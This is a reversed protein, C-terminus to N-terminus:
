GVTFSWINCRTHIKGRPFPYYPPAPPLLPRCSSNATSKLGKVRKRELQQGRGGRGKVRKRQQTDSSHLLPTASSSHSQQTDSSHSQQTDSSHSQQTDSSHSQDDENGM